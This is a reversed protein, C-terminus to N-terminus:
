AARCKPHLTSYALVEEKVLTGEIPEIHRSFLADFAADNDRAAQCHAKLCVLNDDRLQAPISIGSEEAM